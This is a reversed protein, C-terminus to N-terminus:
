AARVPNHVSVARSVKKAVVRLTKNSVKQKFSKELVRRVFTEVQTAPEDKTKM